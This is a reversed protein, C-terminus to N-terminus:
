LIWILSAMRGTAAGDRRYSFFRTSDSATCWDGGYIDIVGAAHLAIRAIAYLDCQWQGTATASFAMASVPYRALFAGRVEDGVVFACPGISPGLWALKDGAPMAAVTAELVGAALGRWGAHAAAVASADRNCLLVPLCDATLIACVAGRACAVSADADVGRQEVSICRTGHVQRLWSPANPLAFAACIRRRNETVAGPQDGVHDGLNLSAYPGRSVGGYRTTTVARVQTPAPWDPILPALM